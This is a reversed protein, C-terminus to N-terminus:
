APRAPSANARNAAFRMLRNKACRRQWTMPCDGPDTEPLAVLVRTAALPAVIGPKWHGFIATGVAKLYSDGAGHGYSDNHIQFSRYDPYSAVAKAHLRWGARRRKSCIVARRGDRYPEFDLLTTSAAAYRALQTIEARFHACAGRAVLDVARKGGRCQLCFSSRLSPPLSMTCYLRPDPILRM